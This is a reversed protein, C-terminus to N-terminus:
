RLGSELRLEGSLKIIEELDFLAEGSIESFDAKQAQFVPSVAFRGIARDLAAILEKVTKGGGAEPIKDTIQKNKAASAFLVAKLKIATETMKGSAKDIKPYDVKEGGAYAKVIANQLRQIREFYNKVKVAESKGDDRDTKLATEAEKKVEDLEGSRARIGRSSPSQAQVNSFIGIALTFLIVSIIEKM